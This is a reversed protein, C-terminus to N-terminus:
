EETTLTFISQPPIDRLVCEEMVGVEMMKETLTSRFVRVSRDGLPLGNLPLEAVSDCSKNIIVVTLAECGDDNFFAVSLIDRSKSQSLVRKMGPRIYRCFHKFWYFSKTLTYGCETEWSDKEWPNEVLCLTGEGSGAGRVFSCCLVGCFLSWYLSARNPFLHEDM